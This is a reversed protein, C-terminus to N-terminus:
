PASTYVQGSPVKNGQRAAGLVAVAGCTAAWNKGSDALSYSRQASPLTYSQRPPSANCQTTPTTYSYEGLGPAGRASCHAGIALNPGPAQTMRSATKYSKADKKTVGEGCGATHRAGMCPGRTPAVARQSVSFGSCTPPGQSGAVGVRWRGGTNQVTTHDRRAGKSKIWRGEQVLVWVQGGDVGWYFCVRM